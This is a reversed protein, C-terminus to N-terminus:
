RGASGAAASDGGAAGPLEQEQIKRRLLMALDLASTLHKEVCGERWAAVLAAENRRWRSAAPLPRGREIAQHKAVRAIAFQWEPEFM